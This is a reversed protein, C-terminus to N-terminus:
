PCGRVRPPNRTSLTNSPLRKRAKRMISKSVDADATMDVARLPPQSTWRSDNSVTPASEILRPIEPALRMIMSSSPLNSSSAREYFTDEAEKDIIALFIEKRTETIGLINLWESKITGKGLLVTECQAGIQKSLKLMKSGKGYELICCFLVPGVSDAKM